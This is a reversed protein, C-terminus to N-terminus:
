RIFRLEGFNPILARQGPNDSHPAPFYVFFARGIMLKRPVLGPRIGDSGHEPTTHARVDPHVKEWLRSDSSQPSNDGLCFFEDSHIGVAEYVATRSRPHPTYYLDRDLDIHSLRMPAGTVSVAVRAAESVEGRNLNLLAEYNLALGSGVKEAEETTDYLPIAYRGIPKGDAFLSVTHDVYWLEVRTTRDPKLPKSRTSFEGASHWQEGGVPKLRIWPSGDTAIGGRIDFLETGIDLTVAGGSAEPKVDVGVSFDEAYYPGGDDRRPRQYLSDNYACYDSATREDFRFSLKGSEGGSPKYAFAKGHGLATVPGTPEWPSRWNTEAADLPVYQSHYVPQWVTRQIRDPKTRVRWPEIPEHSEPDTARSYVNGRVIRLQENPLGVLRKIFNEQPKIPNKFVVVDWRRPESLAYIYKLVLIRDGAETRQVREHWTRNTMPSAYTLPSDKRYLRGSRDRREVEGQILWPESSHNPNIRDRTDTKFRYGTYPDVASLHKGLLTPAMSGTPIVFAEVVFARFVFALVFAIVISELTEKISSDLAPEDQKAPKEATDSM